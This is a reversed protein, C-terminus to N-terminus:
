NEGETFIAETGKLKQEIMLDRVWQPAAAEDNLLDKFSFLPSMEWMEKDYFTWGRVTKSRNGATVKEKVYFCASFLELGTEEYEYIVVDEGKKKELM